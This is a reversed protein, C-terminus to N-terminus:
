AGLACETCPRDVPRDVPGRDEATVQAEVLQWHRLRFQNPEYKLGIRFTQIDVDHFSNLMCYM